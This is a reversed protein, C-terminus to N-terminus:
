RARGYLTIEDLEFRFSNNRVATSGPGSEASNM